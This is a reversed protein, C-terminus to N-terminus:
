GVGLLLTALLAQNWWAKSCRVEECVISTEHRNDYAGILAGGSM